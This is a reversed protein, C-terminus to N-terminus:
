LDEDPVGYFGPRTRVKLGDRKVKVDIGHFDPRGEGFTEDGPAYGVLYYGSMDALITEADGGVDNSNLMALGGTERPLYRLSEQSNLLLFSSDAQTM